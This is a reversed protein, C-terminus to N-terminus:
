PSPRLPSSLLRKPALTSGDFSDVSAYQRLASCLDTYVLRVRLASLLMRRKKADEHTAAKKAGPRQDLCIHSIERQEVTEMFALRLHSIYIFLYYIFGYCYISLM